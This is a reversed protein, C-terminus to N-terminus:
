NLLFRQRELPSIKRMPNGDCRIGGDGKKEPLFDLTNLKNYSFNFDGWGIERPGGKLTVLLNNSCYFGGGVKQTAGDLAKLLNRFCFVNNHVELPSGKLSTLNNCSCDFYGEVIVARLDPLVDLKQGKLDIDGKVLLRGDDQEIYDIGLQELAEKSADTDYNSHQRETM